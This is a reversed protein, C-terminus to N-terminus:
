CRNIGPERGESVFDLAYPTLASPIWLGLRLDPDGRNNVRVGTALGLVATVLGLVATILGLWITLPSLLIM